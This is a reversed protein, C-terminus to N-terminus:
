AGGLFDMKGLPVGKHRLIAYATTAHFWFNPLAFSQVYAIASPFPVERPGFKLTIPDSDKGDFANAPVAKLYEVTSAIRAQLEDFTTETDAMSRREIGGVRVAVGRATDSAFQVQASLPKMDPALRTAIMEAHDIGNEDAFARGKELHKSMNGLARAFVPITIDFLSPM